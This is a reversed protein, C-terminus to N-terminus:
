MRDVRRIAQRATPDRMTRNCAAEFDGYLRATEKSHEEIKRHAAARASTRIANLQEDTMMGQVHIYKVLQTLIETDEHKVREQASINHMFAKFIVQYTTAMCTYEHRLSPTKAREAQQYCWDIKDMINQLLTEDSIITAGCKHCKVLKM